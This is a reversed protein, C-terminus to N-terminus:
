IGGVVVTVESKILGQHGLLARHDQGRLVAEIRHRGPPLHGLDIVPHYASAIKVGDRIIHAHGVPVAEAETLCLETFRFGDVEIELQWRGSPLPYIALKVKPEPLDAPLQLFVTRPPGGTANVLPAAAALTALLASVIAAAGYRALIRPIM